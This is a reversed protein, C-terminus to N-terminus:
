TENPHLIEYAQKIRKYWNKSTKYWGYTALTTLLIGVLVILVLYGAKNSGQYRLMLGLCAAITTLPVNIVMGRLIRMRSRVYETVNGM